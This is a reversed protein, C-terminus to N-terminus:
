QRRGWLQVAEAEYPRLVLTIENTVRLGRHSRGFDIRFAPGPYFITFEDDGLGTIRGFTDATLDDSLQQSRLSGLIEGEFRTALVPEPATAPNFYTKPYLTLLPKLREFEAKSLGGLDRLEEISQWPVPKQAAGEAEFKPDQEAQLALLIVRARSADIGVSELLRM